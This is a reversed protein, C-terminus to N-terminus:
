AASQLRPELTILIVVDILGTTARHRPAEMRHLGDFAFGSVQDNRCLSFALHCSTM